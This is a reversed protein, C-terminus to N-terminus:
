EGVRKESANKFFFEACEAFLDVGLTDSLALFKVEPSVRTVLGNSIKVTAVKCGCAKAARIAIKREREPLDFPKGRRPLELKGNKWKRQVCFVKKGIVACHNVPTFLFDMLVAADIGSDASFSTMQKDLEKKTEIVLSQTKKQGSYAEFIAPFSLRRGTHSLDAKAAGFVTKPLPVKAKDLVVLQFLENSNLYYAGPVVQSFLRKRSIEDLLPEVFPALKLKANLFVAAFDDINVPGSLLTKRGNGSFISFDSLAAVKASEFGAAVFAKKLRPMAATKETSLILARM